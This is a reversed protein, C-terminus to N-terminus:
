NKRRHHSRGPKRGGTHLLNVDYLMRDLKARASRSTPTTVIRDTHNTSPQDGQNADVPGSNAIQGSALAEDSAAEPVSDSGAFEPEIHSGEM